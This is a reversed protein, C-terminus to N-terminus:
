RCRARVKGVFLGQLLVVPAVVVPVVELALNGAQRRDSALPKVRAFLLQIQCGAAAVRRLRAVRFAMCATGDTSTAESGLKNNTTM